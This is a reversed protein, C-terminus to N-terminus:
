LISLIFAALVLSTIAAALRWPTRVGTAQEVKRPVIASAGGAIVGGLLITAKAWFLDNGVGFVTVIALVAGLSLFAGGLVKYLAGIIRCTEHGVQEHKTIEAHHDILPAARVFKLGMAMVGAAAVLFLAM